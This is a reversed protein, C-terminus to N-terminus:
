FTRKTGMEDMAKIRTYEWIGRCKPFMTALEAFVFAGAFTALGGFVWYSVLALPGAKTAAGGVGIKFGSAVVNAYGTLM